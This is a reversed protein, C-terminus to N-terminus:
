CLSMCLTSSPPCTKEDNLANTLDDIAGQYDGTRLKVIGSGRYSQALKYGASICAQYENLAYDYNAEELDANAQEYTKQNEGGCGTLLLAGLGAALLCIIKKNRM